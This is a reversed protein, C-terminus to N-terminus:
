ASRQACWAGYILSSFVKIPSKFGATHFMQIIKDEHRPKLDTRFRALLDEVIETPTGAYKAQYSWLDLIELEPQNKPFHIDATYLWGNSKILSYLKSFFRQAEKSNEIHQSVLISTVVDYAGEGDFSELDCAYLNIRDSLNKRNIQSLCYKRMANAPELADFRWEPFAEALPILDAGTGCGVILAKGQNDSRAFITKCLRYLGIRGPIGAEALREYNEAWEEDYIQM